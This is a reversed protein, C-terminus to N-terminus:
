GVRSRRSPHIDGMNSEKESQATANADTAPNTRKKKAEEIDQQEKIRRREREEELKLNKGKIKEKRKESRGGGGGVTLEVNIRRQKKKKDNREGDPKDKAAEPDFISHHYLKLCTKMKDYGAFELFAFGKSRGTVKDTRHRISTPALKTFHSEIQATTTSYPLNGIFLIFRQPKSDNAGTVASDPPTVENELGQTGAAVKPRSKNKQNIQSTSHAVRSSKGIASATVATSNHVEGLLKPTKSGKASQKSPLKFREDGAKDVVQGADPEETNNSKHKKHARQPKPNLDDGGAEGAPSTRATRRKHKKLSRRESKEQRSKGDKTPLKKRPYGDDGAENNADEVVRTKQQQHPDQDEAELHERKRKKASSDGM